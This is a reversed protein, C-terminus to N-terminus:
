SIIATEVLKKQIKSVRPIEKFKSMEVLYNRFFILIRFKEYILKIVALGSFPIIVTNNVKLPLRKWIKLVLFGLKSTEWLFFGDM